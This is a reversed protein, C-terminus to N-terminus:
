GFVKHVISLGIQKSQHLSPNMMSIGLHNQKLLILDNPM